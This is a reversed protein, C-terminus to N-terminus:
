GGPAGCKPGRMARFHARIEGPNLVRDHVEIEDLLGDLTEGAPASLALGHWAGLGSLNGWTALAGVEEGDLFARLTSGDYTGAFHHFCGARLARDVRIHRLEGALRAYVHLQGPSALGDHRIVFKESSLTVFRQTRDPLDNLKVWGSVTLGKQIHNFGEGPAWVWGDTGDFSFASGAVGPGFGVPGYLLGHNPGVSDDPNGEGSWRSILGGRRPRPQWDVVRGERDSLVRVSLIDHAQASAGTAATFGVWAREGGSLDLSESLDITASLSPQDLDNLWVEILESSPDHVLTVHHIEGSSLDPIDSTFASAFRPDASNMGTGGTHVAIHNDNPEPPWGEPHDPDVNQWMDFEVAVSNRGGSYGLGGGGAGVFSGHDNQIVFAFGDAGGDRRESIQFSFQVVFHESVVIQEKTWVAGVRGPESPTLRIRDGLFDADGFARLESSASAHPATSPLPSELSPSLPADWCGPILLLLTAFFPLRNPPPGPPRPGGGGRRRSRNQPVSRLAM